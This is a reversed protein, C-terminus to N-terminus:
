NPQKRQKVSDFKTKLEKTCEILLPIMSEYSLSLYNEGSKSVIEGTALNSSDFPALEVVEPLVRQVDQANVGVHVSETDQLFKLSKALESPIYKFANINRIKELPHDIASVVDKLRMDSYFSSISGSATITGYVSAGNVNAEIKKSGNYYLANLNKMANVLYEDTGLTKYQQPQTYLRNELAPTIRTTFVNFDSLYLTGQNNVSGLKNTYSYIPYGYLEWELLRAYFETGITLVIIRYYSFVQTNNPLTFLRSNNIVPSTNTEYDLLAWSVGDNSGALVFNKPWSQTTTSSVYLYYYKLVISTPMQIQLWEGSYSIGSVTTSISGLYAGSGNNTYIQASTWLNTNAATVNDWNFVRFPQETASAATSADCIYTGSNVGYGSLVTRNATLAAPPYKFIGQASPLVENFYNRSGNNIKVFGQHTSSNSINWIFQNWTDNTYPTEYIPMNNIQFSLTNDIRRVIYNNPMDNNMSYLTYAESATIVRDYVRVDDLNGRFSIWTTAVASLGIRWTGTAPVPAGSSTDSAVQVGDKYIIRQNNSVNYTFSWHVWNNNMVSYNYTPSFLDNGFIGFQMQTGLWVIHITTRTGGANGQTIIFGGDTTSTLGSLRLWFAITFSKSALNIATNSLFATTDNISLSSTGYKKNVGDYLINTTSNPILMNNNGSSDNLMSKSDGNFQYWALLNATQTYFGNNYYLTNIEDQSLVKNYIRFDDLNGILTQATSTTSLIFGMNPPTWTGATNTYVFVGNKYASIRTSTGIKEAIWVYHNWVKDATYDNLLGSTNSNNGFLHIAWYTFNTHRQIILAANFASNLWGYFINDWNTNVNNRKLWFSITFASTFNTAFNYSPTSLYGATSTFNASADGYVKDTKQPYITSSSSSPVLDYDKGTLGYNKCFDISDFKYWFYLNTTDNFFNNKPVNGTTMELIIDDGNQTRDSKFWGSVTLDGYNMWNNNPLVAEQGNKLFLCTKNYDKVITGGGIINLDNSQTYLTLNSSYDKNQIKIKDDYMQINAYKLHEATDSPSVAAYLESELQSTVQASVVQYNYLHLDGENARSGLKTLFMNQYGFLKWEGVATNTNNNNAGICLRYYSYLTTNSSVTFPKAVNGSYGTINTETDLLYWNTGDNSGLVIMNKPGRNLTTRETSISYTTLVISSPMQLQLWEGSYTSTSTATKTAYYSTSVAGSYAGTSSNYTAASAWRDNTTTDSDSTPLKNFAYDPSNDAVSSASATYTGDAFTGSLLRSALTSTAGSSVSGQGGAISIPPFENTSNLVNTNMAIKDFYRKSGNNIQVFGKSDNNNAINWLVYNWTNDIFPTNYVSVNNILFSLQNNDRKILINNTNQLNYLANIENTTLVKNYIRFDDLNGILTNTTTDSSITFNNNPPTWTGATNTYVQSGNKFVTIKTQTGIREAMWVYHNWTNDATFDNLFGNTNGINGFLNFSWYNNTSNRQIQTNAGNYIIVDGSTNLGKRKLWFSITIANNFYTGFNYSPTLLYGNTSTFNISADGYVKDSSQYTLSNGTSAMLDYTSGAIGFNKLFQDSDFKYWFYLNTTDTLFSNTIELITDNNVFNETKFWTSISFNDSTNYDLRNLELEEKSLSIVKPNRPFIYANNQANLTFKDYINNEFETTPAATHLRLDSLYLNGQNTPAGLRNMYTYYPYGFIYWEGILVVDSTAAGGRLSNVNIAYYRYGAYNNPLNFLTDDTYTTQNLEYDIEIWGVDPGTNFAATRGYKGGTANWCRDDNTAYIKWTKPLREAWTANVRTVKYSKMVIKQGMDIGLYGGKFSTDNGFSYGIMKMVGTTPTYNSPQGVWANAGSVVKTFALHPPYTDDYYDYACARYTIGNITTNMATMASPPFQSFIPQSLLMQNYVNKPGNNIQVYGLSSTSDVINWVVHNWTNDLLNSTEYVPTDNIQFSLLQNRRKLSINYGPNYLTNTTAYLMSIENATLVRNYIRFDDLLSGNPLYLAPSTENAGAGIRLSTAINNVYTRSVTSILAGNIYIVATSAAKNMTIALHRWVTPNTAFSSFLNIGGGSWAGASSASGNGTWFELNNNYIYIIWGSIVTTSNRCSAITAYTNAAPQVIKCWCSITFNDPNFRGDNTVQLYSSGTFAISGNFTKFDINNFTCNVNTLSNNNGSTDVLMNTADQDFKYWCIMNQTDNYFKYVTNFYLSKQTNYLIGIEDSIVGNYIRFDDLYGTFGGYTSAPKGIRWTGTAFNTTGSTTNKSGILTGNMFIKFVNNGGSVYDFTFVLHVWTNNVTTYDMTSSACDDGWLAFYWTNNSWGILLNNRTANTNGQTVIYMQTSNNTLGTLRVWFAISYSTNNLNIATNSLFDNTNNFYASYTDKVKFNVDFAVPNTTDNTLNYTAISTASTNWNNEFKYWALLNTTDNFFTDGLELIKYNNMSNFAIRKIEDESLARYYIRLDDMQGQFALNAWASLVAAGIRFTGTAFATDGTANGSAVLIGDKYIQKLRNNEQNYVFVLHTWINNITTIAYNPSDLDDAYFGFRIFANTGSPTIVLHLEQRTTASNGQSIIHYSTASFGTPRVWFAITFTRNLNINTNSLFQATTTFNVAYDGSKRNTADFSPSTTTTLTYGNGSSDNFNNEFQYFSVLDQKTIENESTKFWGSITLNSYETWNNSPVLAYSGNELLLSNRNNDVVHKGGYNLLRQSNASSDVQLLSQNEFKYNAYSDLIDKPVTADSIADVQNTLITSVNTINSYTEILGIGQLSM